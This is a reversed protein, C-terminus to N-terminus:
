GDVRVIHSGVVPFAGASTSIMSFPSALGPSDSFHNLNYFLPPIKVKMPVTIHLFSEIELLGGFNHPYGFLTEIVIVTL